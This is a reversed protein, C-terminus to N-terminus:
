CFCFYRSCCSYVEDAKKDIEALCEQRSADASSAHKEVNYNDMKGKPSQTVTLRIKRGSWTLAEEQIQLVIGDANNHTYHIYTKAKKSSTSAASSSASASANSSEAGTSAGQYTQYAIAGVIAAAAGALATTLLQTSM